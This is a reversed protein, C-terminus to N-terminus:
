RFPVNRWSSGGDTTRWLQQTEVGAATDYRTQVLAAGAEADTFGVWSWFTAGAPTAPTTWTTGADTTELPPASAGNRILMATTDSAPALLASNVLGLPTRLPAFTVGKDTSRAAGAMMGTPCVAWVVRASSPALEGGLGPFCPGDGVVFTRGADTSRALLDYRTAVEGARTGLLWINAGHASLDLVAGDPTFPMASSTWTDRSVPSRALRFDACRDPTCQATVANVYGGGTAFAILSRLELLHWSAGGDHTAYVVGGEGTVFAFGDDHDAYRLTVESGPAGVNQLEPAPISSFSGGGDTTRVIATCRGSACPVSGLVWYDSASIATFSLPVFGSPVAQGAPTASTTTPSSTPSVTGTTTPGGVSAAGPHSTGCGALVVGLGIVLGAAALRATGPLGARM